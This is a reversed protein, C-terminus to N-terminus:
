HCVSTVGEFRARAGQASWGAEAVKRWVQDDRALSIADLRLGFSALDRTPPAWWEYRSKWGIRPAGNPQDVRVRETTLEIAKAACDLLDLSAGARAYLTRYGAALEAIAEPPKEGLLVYNREIAFASGHLGIVADADVSIAKAAPLVANACASLCYKSVRVRIGKSLIADALALAASEDGGQSTIRLVKGTDLAPILAAAAADSIRGKFAIEGSAGGDVLAAS